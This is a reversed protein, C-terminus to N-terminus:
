VVTLMQSRVRLLSINCSLAADALYVQSSTRHSNDGRRRTSQLPLKRAMDKMSLSNIILYMCYFRFSAFVM